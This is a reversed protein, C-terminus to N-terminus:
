PRDTPKNDTLEQLLKLQNAMEEKDRLLLENSKQVIDIAQIKESYEKYGANNYRFQDIFLCIVSVFMGLASIIVSAVVALLLNDIKDLRKEVKAQWLRGGSDFTVGGTEPINIKPKEKEEPM